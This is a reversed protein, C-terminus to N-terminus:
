LGRSRLFAGVKPAGHGTVVQLQCPLDFLGELADLQRDAVTRGDVELLWKPSTATREGLRTGIGAALVILVDDHGDVINRRSPRRGRPGGYSQSPSPPRSSNLHGDVPM